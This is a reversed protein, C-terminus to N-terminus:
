CTEKFNNTRRKSQEKKGGLRVQPSPFSDLCACVNRGLVFLLACCPALSVTYNTNAMRRSDDIRTTATTSQKNSCTMWCKCKSGFSRDWSYAAATSTSFAYYYTSTYCTKNTDENIDFTFLCVSLCIPCTCIWQPLIMQMEDTYYIVM